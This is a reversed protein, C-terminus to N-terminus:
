PCRPVSRRYESLGDARDVVGDGRRVADRMTMFDEDAIAFLHSEARGERREREHSPDHLVAM